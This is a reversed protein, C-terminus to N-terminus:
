VAITLNDCASVILLSCLNEAARLALRGARMKATDSPLNM